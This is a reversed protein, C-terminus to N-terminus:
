RCRSANDTQIGNNPEAEGGYIDLVLAIGRESMLAMVGPPLTMEESFLRCFIGCWFVVRYKATLDRWVTLDQTLVALASEIHEGIPAQGALGSDLYWAGSRRVMHYRSDPRVDGKRWSRTPAHRLVRTVEDPVLQDGAILLEVKVRSVPGSVQELDGSPESPPPPKQAM